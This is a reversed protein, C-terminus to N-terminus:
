PAAPAPLVEPPIIEIHPQALGTEQLHRRLFSDFSEELLKQHLAEDIRETLAQSLGKAYGLYIAQRTNRIEYCILNLGMRAQANALILVEPKPSYIAAVRGKQLMQLMRLQVKGGSVALLTLGRIEKPILTGQVHAIVSSSRLPSEHRNKLMCFGASVSLLPYKSFAIQSERQADKFLTLVVDLQQSKLQVLARNISVEEFNLPQDLGKLFGQAYQFLPGEPKNSEFSVLPLYEIVGVNLLRRQETASVPSM